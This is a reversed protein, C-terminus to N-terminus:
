IVGQVGVRFLRCLSGRWGGVCLANAACPSWHLCWLCVRRPLGVPCDCKCAYFSSFLYFFSLVFFFFLSLSFLSLVKEIAPIFEPPINNGSMVNLFENDMSDPNEEDEIPEIYGIVQCSASSPLSLRLYTSLCISISLFPFSLPFAGQRVSRCRWDVRRQSVFSACICYLCMVVCVDVCVCVSTCRAHMECADRM